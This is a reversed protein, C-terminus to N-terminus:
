TTGSLPSGGGRDYRSTVSFTNRCIEGYHKKKCNRLAQLILELKKKCNRLAQLILELKKKCHKQM